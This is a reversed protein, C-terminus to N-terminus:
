RPTLSRYLVYVALAGTQEFFRWCLDAQKNM